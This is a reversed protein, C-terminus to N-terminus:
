FDIQMQSRVGSGNESSGDSLKSDTYGIQFKMGNEVFTYTM